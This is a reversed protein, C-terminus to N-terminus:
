SGKQAGGGEQPQQGTGSLDPRFGGPAGRTSAAARAEATAQRATALANLAGHALKRCNEITDGAKERSDGAGLVMKDMRLMFEAATCMADKADEFAKATTPLELGSPEGQSGVPAHRMNQSTNMLHTLEVLASGALTRCAVLSQKDEDWTKGRKATTAHLDELHVAVLRSCDEVDALEDETVRWSSITDTVHSSTGGTLQASLSAQKAMEVMQAELVNLSAQEAEAAAKEAAEEEALTAELAKRKLEARARQAEAREIAAARTAAIREELVSQSGALSGAKSSAGVAAGGQAAIAATLAAAADAAPAAM